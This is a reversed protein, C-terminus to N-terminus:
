AARAVLPLRARSTVLVVAATLLPLVVVLGGLLLWPVDLYPGTPAPGYDTSTLPVAIAFGPIAGVVAGLVAGVLGVVLAYSAAISRRTRPSAGVAALTALDPRADSLALSTATLTGGLVLVAGLAFLVALLVVVEDDDQYGREVFVGGYESAASMAEALTEEQAPSIDTGTMLVGVTRAPQGLEAAVEPTLVAQAGAPGATGLYTAPFTAEAVPRAEGTADDIRDLRLTAEDGGPADRRPVEDAFVISRGAALSRRIEDRQADDLGPVADIAAAGVLVDSGLGSGYSSLLPATGDPGTVEAYGNPDTFGRVDTLTAGPVVRGALARVADWDTRQLDRVDFAGVTLVGAGAALSPLYTAENERADSSAGIGLAVVAAVTAAVAAVAPATRTRQRAADRVAYRLVLPLRGALRGLWSLVLPVLLVMGVVSVAGAVAIVAERGPELAGVLAAAVGLGLLVAGIVPSRRSPRPEGRRGALVAVVDQRSALVAPALAVLLAAVLGLAAVGGLLLWPVDFPGFWTGSFRQLVPLLAVATVLGAVAGAAAAVGGLVVATALVVRRAQRPTGGSAVLLALTRSQRRAGVAFAPGALLTVELVVMAVVLALVAMTTPDSEGTSRAEPPLEAQSPPDLLVARSTVVAGADNLRRVDSWTVPDGGVLWTRSPSPELGTSGLPGAVVPASRLTTSEAVGVVVPTPRGEDPVRLRDGVAYGEDLVAQNVVIEDASTPWRGSVLRFLGQTLPDELDTETAEASTVGDDTVLRVAGSEVRTTPRDGGLLREVQSARLAPSSGDGESGWGAQSTDAGQWVQTVGPESVVEAQAAGIRRDVDEAGRVDSTSLVVAAATVALVPLGIMVLVLLSRGRARLADRRALRLPLSWGVLRGRM